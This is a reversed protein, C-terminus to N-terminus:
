SLCIITIYQKQKMNSSVNLRTFKNTCLKLWYNELEM